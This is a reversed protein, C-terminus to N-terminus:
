LIKIFKMTPSEPIKNIWVSYTEFFKKDSETLRGAEKSAKNM